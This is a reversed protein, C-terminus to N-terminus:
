LIHYQTKLKMSIFYINTEYRKPSTPTLTAVSSKRSLEAITNQQEANCRRLDDRERRLEDNQERLAKLKSNLKSVQEQQSVIITQLQQLLDLGKNYTEGSPSPSSM